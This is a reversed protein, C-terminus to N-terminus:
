EEPASLIEITFHEVHTSQSILENARALQEVPQNDFQLALKRNEQYLGQTAIVQWDESQDGANQLLLGNRPYTDATIKDKAKVTIPYIQGPLYHIGLHTKQSSRDLANWRVIALKPTQVIGNVEDFLLVLQGPELNSKPKAALLIGAGNTSEDVILGDMLDGLRESIMPLPEVAHRALYHIDRVGYVLSVPKQTPVRNEKRQSTQLWTKQLETLLIRNKEPTSESFGPINIDPDSKLQSLHRDLHENLPGLQLSLLSTAQDFWRYSQPRSHKTLDIVFGSDPARDSKLATIEANRAYQALYSWIQVTQEALLQYPDSIAMVSIQLYLGEINSAVPLPLELNVSQKILNRSRAYAYLQNLDSWHHTTQQQHKQYDVLLNFSIAAMACYVREALKKGMFRKSEPFTILCLKYGYGLERSLQGIREATDLFDSLNKRFKDNSLYGFFIQYPELFCELIEFRLKSSIQTRNLLALKATVQDLAQVMSGYPLQQLEHRLTAPSVSVLNDKIAKETPLDLQLDSLNM